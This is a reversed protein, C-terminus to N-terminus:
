AAGAHDPTPYGMHAMLEGAEQYFFAEDDPTFLEGVSRTRRQTPFHNTSRLRGLVRDLRQQVRSNVPKPLVPDRLRLTLGLASALREITARTDKTVDEFRVTIVDPADIWARVHDRWQAVRNRGQEDTQRIFESFSSATQPAFDTLFSYYSAMVKRGDRVCCVYASRALVADAFGRHEPKILGFDPLAHTKITPRKAKRLIQM